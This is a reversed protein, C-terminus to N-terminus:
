FLSLKDLLDPDLNSLDGEPNPAERTRRALAEREQIGDIDGSSPFSHPVGLDSAFREVNGPLVRLEHLRHAMLFQQVDLFGEGLAEGLQSFGFCSEASYTVPVAKGLLVGSKCQMCVLFYSISM